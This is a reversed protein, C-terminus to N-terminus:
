WKASRGVEVEGCERVGQVTSRGILLEGKGCFTEPKMQPHLPETTFIKLLFNLRGKGGLGGPTCGPRLYLWIQCSPFPAKSPLLSLLPVPSFIRICSGGYERM